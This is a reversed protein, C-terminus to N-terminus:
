KVGKAIQENRIQEGYFIPIEKFLLYQVMSAYVSGRVGECASLKKDASLQDGGDAAKACMTCYRFCWCKKCNEQTLRGINLLPEIKELDFGRELTGIRMASSGESVRECPFMNGEVDVFLRTKGPICPGSPADIVHLGEKMEFRKHNKRDSQLIFNAIPAVNERTYRKMVALTALFQQYQVKWAYEHSVTAEQEGDGREVLTGMISLNDIDSGELTAFNYCDFDQEPDMVMNVMMDQAYEPEIEHIRNIREIVADYTGKGDAFVRNVDNIEKPGDLSILLSVKHLAFYHIIEDTFLTANTTISFTLEKGVFREKSYTVAKKILPFALLPEGGYFGVNVKLSDISHEWLFDIAQKAMEWSMWKNAHSRQSSNVNESYTCYKCRFNCNQTLQLTIKGVKRELLDELFPTYYQKLEKVASEQAFYGRAALKQIEVPIKDGFNKEKKVIGELYAFSDASVEIFENENAEYFYHGNTTAFLMIFPVNM